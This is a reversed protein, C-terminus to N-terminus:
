SLEQDHDRHRHKDYNAQLNIWLQTSVGTHDTLRQATDLDISTHGDVIATVRDISLGTAAALQQRSTDTYDLWEQLTEGPHSYWDPQWPYSMPTENDM